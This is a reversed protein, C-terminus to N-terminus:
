VRRTMAVVKWFIACITLTLGAVYFMAPLHASPTTQGDGSTVKVLSYTRFFSSFYEVEGQITDGKKFTDGSKVVSKDIRVTREEGSPFMKECTFFNTDGGIYSASNIKITLLYREPHSLERDTPCTSPVLLCPARYVNQFEIETIEGKISCVPTPPPASALTRVAILPITLLIFIYKALQTIVIKYLISRKPATPSLRVRMISACWLNKLGERRGNRWWPM